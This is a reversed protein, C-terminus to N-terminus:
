NMEYPYHHRFVEEGDKQLTIEGHWETYVYHPNSYRVGSATTDRRMEIIEGNFVFLATNSEEDFSMELISGASDRVASQALNDILSATKDLNDSNQKRSSSNGGCSVLFAGAIAAMILIEKKM